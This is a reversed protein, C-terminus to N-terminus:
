HVRPPRTSRGGGHFTSDDGSPSRRSKPNTHPNHCEVCANDGTKSILGRLAEGAEERKAAEVHSSGAGHCSECQVGVLHPTKEESLYGGQRDHGTVHCTYCEPMVREEESLSRWAAAHRTKQWIKYERFHCIRCYKEGVYKADAPSRAAVRGGGLVAAALAGLVAIGLAGGAVTPPLSRVRM